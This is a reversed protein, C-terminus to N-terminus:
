NYRVILNREVGDHNCSMITQNKYQNLKAKAENLRYSLFSVNESVVRDSIQDYCEKHELLWDRGMKSNVFFADINKKTEKKGITDKAEKKVFVIGMISGIPKDPALKKIITTEAKM